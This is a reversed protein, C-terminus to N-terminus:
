DFNSYLGVSLPDSTQSRAVRYGNLVFTRLAALGSVHVNFMVCHWVGGM